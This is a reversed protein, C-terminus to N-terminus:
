DARLVDCDSERALRDREPDAITGSDAHVGMSQADGRSRHAGGFRRSGPRPRGLIELVFNHLANRTLDGPPQPLYGPTEWVLLGIDRKKLWPIVCTSPEWNM